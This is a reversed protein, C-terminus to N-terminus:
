NYEINGIQGAKLFESLKFQQRGRYLDWIAHLTGKLKNGIVGSKLSTEGFSFSLRSQRGESVLFGKKM